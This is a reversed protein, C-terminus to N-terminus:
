WWMFLVFFVCLFRSWTRVWITIVKKISIKLCSLHRWVGFKAPNKHLRDPASGNRCPQPPLGERSSQKIARHQMKHSGRPARFVVPFCDWHSHSWCGGAKLSTHWQKHLARQLWTTFCTTAILTLSRAAAGSALRKFTSNPGSAYGTHGYAKCQKRSPKPPQPWAPALFRAGRCIATFPCFM